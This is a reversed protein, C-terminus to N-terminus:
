RRGAMEQLGPHLPELRSSAAKSDVVRSRLSFESVAPGTGGEGMSVARLEIQAFRRGRFRDEQELRTLYLPLAAADTMRGTLTLDRGDDNMTLGTIWLAPQTQRGLAQLYESYHPSALTMTNRLADRMQRQRIETKRLRALEDVNPMPPLTGAKIRLTVMDQELKVKQGTVHRAALSMAVGALVTIGVMGAAARVGWVASWPVVKEQTVRTDLLNVAQRGLSLSHARLASGIVCLEQLGPAKALAEAQDGLASLDVHDALSFYQTPVYVLDGLVELVDGEGDGSGTPQVVSLGSLNVQSHMREFTDLTRLVELAARGLAAGRAEHTGTVASVAVEINRTMLLEGKYTIVLMGHSEGFVLLAHAQGEVEAMASLNRLATEATDIAAWKLGVDDAALAMRVYDARQTVLAIAPHTQRLQTDQPVALVELLADEMPFDVQDKIRWRMADRWEERPVDPVETSLVRYQHRELQGVLSVGRLRHARKLLGLAASFDDAEANWLWLLRPRQGEAHAVKAAHVRTGEQAVSVWQNGGTVRRRFLM